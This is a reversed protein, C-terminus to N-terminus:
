FSNTVMTCFVDIKVCTSFKTIMPAVSQVVFNYDGENGRM